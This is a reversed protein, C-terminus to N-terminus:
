CLGAESGIFFTARLLCESNCGMHYDHSTVQHSISSRQKAAAQSGSPQRMQDLQKTSTEARRSSTKVRRIEAGTETYSREASSKPVLERPM